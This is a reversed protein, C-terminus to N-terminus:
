ARYSVDDGLGGTHHVEQSWGVGNSLDRSWVPNRRVEYGESGRRVRVSARHRREDNVDDDDDDDDEFDSLWQVPSSRGSSSSGRISDDARDDGSSYAESEPPFSSGNLSERRQPIEPMEERERTRQRVQGHANSPRLAPNLGGGGYTFPDGALRAKQFPLTRPM